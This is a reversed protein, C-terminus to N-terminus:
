EDCAIQNRGAQKARYMAKDAREFVSEATDGDRFTGIGCSITITVAEGRFHFGCTAVAQRLKEALERAANLEAGSTLMVFEEGGYRALFDTERIQTHLLRAITTLVKDGAKHGYTDNISKFNDVDWVFLCLPTKFRKWRALEQMSREQYALRNPIGTLPDLLAQSREASIRKRLESAENELAGLRTTLTSLQQNLQQQREGEASRYGELHSRLADLRQQVSQKLDGISTANRVSSEIDRVHDQVARDLAAGDEQASSSVEQAGQLNLDLEQLRDTLQKLFDEIERQEQQVLNRMEAILGAIDELIRAWDGAGEVTELRAKIGEVRANLEIPLTLRELLQLLMEQLSIPAAAAAVTATATATAPVDGKDAAPATKGFLKRLMGGGADGSKGVNADVLAFAEHLLGAFENLLPDINSGPADALHERLVKTKRGLGKPLELRDLLRTLSPTAAKQSRSAKKKQDLRLLTDSMAEVRQYLVSGDAKDRFASRLSELQEDLTNDLGEAALTLRSIARRLLDETRVWLKEKKELQELSDYYRSKWQAAQLQDDDAM